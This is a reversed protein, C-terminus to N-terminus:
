DRGPRDQEVLDQLMRAALEHVVRRPHLPRSGDPGPQAGNIWPDDSCVDHGRTATALDLFAVGATRAAAELSANVRAVLEGFWAVDGDALPLLDPCTASAATTTPTITPYGVVVIRAGPAHQAIAALARGADDQVRAAAQMLRDVGDRRQSRRCPAGSPDRRRLDPCVTTITPFLGDDNGGLGLTVLDTGAGLAQGQPPVTAQPRVQPEILSTMAAGSCTVDSLTVPTGVTRLRTSLLHAYDNTSRDCAVSDPEPIGVGASYSDGFAVYAIPAPPPDDSCGALLGALCALAALLLVPARRM